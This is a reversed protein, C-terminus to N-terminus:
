KLSGIWKYRSSLYCVWQLKIVSIQFYKDEFFYLLFYFFNRMTFFPFSFMRDKRLEANTKAIEAKLKLRSKETRGVEEVNRTQRALGALEPPQPNAANPLLRVAFLGFAQIQKKKRENM